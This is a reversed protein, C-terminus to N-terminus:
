TGGTHGSAHGAISSAADDHRMEPCPPTTESRTQVARMVVSASAHYDSFEISRSKRQVAAIAITNKVTAELRV